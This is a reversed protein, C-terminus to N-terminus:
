EEMGACVLDGVDAKVGDHGDRERAIPPGPNM